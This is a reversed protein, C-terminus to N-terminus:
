TAPRKAVLVVFTRRRESVERREVVFTGWRGRQLEETLWSTQVEPELVLRVHEGLVGTESLGDLIRAITKAGLGALVVTRGGQAGVDRLEDETLDAADRQLVVPAGGLKSSHEAIDERLREVVARSKDVLVVPHARQEVLATLGVRGHDCGLDLLAWGPRVAAYIAELRAGLTPGDPREDSM